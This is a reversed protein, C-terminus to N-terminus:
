VIEAIDTLALYFESQATKPSFVPKELITSEVQSLVQRAAEVMTMARATPEMGGPIRVFLDDKLRRRLRALATSFGSQSMDLLEAARSVNRTQELAVLVRLSNLDFHNNITEM